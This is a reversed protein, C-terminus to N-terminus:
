AEMEVYEGERQKERLLGELREHEDLSCRYGLREWSCDQGEAQHRDLWAADAELQASLARIAKTLGKICEECFVTEGEPALLLIGTDGCELCM